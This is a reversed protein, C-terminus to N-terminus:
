DRPTTKAQGKPEAKAPVRKAEVPEEVRNVQPAAGRLGSTMAMVSVYATHSWKSVIEHQWIVVWFFGAAVVIWWIQYDRSRSMYRM